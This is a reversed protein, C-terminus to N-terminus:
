EAMSVGGFLAIANDQVFEFFGQPQKCKENLFKKFASSFKSLAKQLWIFHGYKTNTCHNNHENLLEDAEKYLQNIWLNLEQIEEDLVEDPFFIQTRVKEYDEIDKEFDGDTNIRDM